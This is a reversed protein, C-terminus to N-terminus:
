IASFNIILTAYPSQSKLTALDENKVGNKKQQHYLLIILLDKWYKGSDCELISKLSINKERLQKECDIFVSM